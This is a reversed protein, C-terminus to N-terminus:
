WMKTPLGELWTQLEADPQEGHIRNKVLENVKRGFEYTHAKDTTIPWRCEKENHDNFEIYWKSSQRSNNPKDRYNRKFVRM